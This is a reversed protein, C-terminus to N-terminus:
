RKNKCRHMKYILTLFFCIKKGKKANLKHHLYELMPFIPQWYKNECQIEQYIKHHIQANVINVQEDTPECDTYKWFGIDTRPIVVMLMVLSEFPREIIPNQFNDICEM